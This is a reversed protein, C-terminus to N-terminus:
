IWSILAAMLCLHCTLLRPLLFVLVYLRCLAQLSGVCELRTVRVRINMELDDQSAVSM